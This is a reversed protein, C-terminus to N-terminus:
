INYEKLIKVIYASLTAISADDLISVEIIPKQLISLSEKKQILEDAGVTDTKTLLIIEKKNLLTEDYDGLEKRVINYAALVDSEEASICHALIHTRSVHRLFADGLGKGLSAGEILGPIDAIVFGELVGLHPHLTTFPYNGVKAVASTVSNLLSSKGANPLGILGVHAILRLEVSYMGGEGEKGLTREKPRINTSSRFYANGYGGHGGKLFLIPEESLVEVSKGTDLHTVISGLPLELILDKGDKGHGRMAKGVEGNEAQHEKEFRYEALKAIDSVGKLYVSGGRGGDGGGPGAHDLGKQHMWSVIGDGGKGAQIRLEIYDIFM